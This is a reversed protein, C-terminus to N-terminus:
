WFYFACKEYGKPVSKSSCHFQVRVDESMLPCTEMEIRLLDEEKSYPSEYIPLQKNNSTSRSFRRTPSYENWIPAEYIKKELNKGVHVTVTLDSGDGRGVSSLGKFIHQNLIIYWPFRQTLLM